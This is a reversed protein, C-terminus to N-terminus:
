RWRPGVVWGVLSKRMGSKVKRVRHKVRSDFVIMTGRPKPAFFTGGSNDMFQVEGGTYESPDSLQVTFSLKRVYEGQIMIQDQHQNEAFNPVMQPKYFSDIDHDQHWHYYHGEGYQTYQINGGDIETIDYCFNERNVKDIYYWLWGAVWHSTPIWVNTSNRIVKDVQDGMLKSEQPPVPLAYLDKELIEVIELPLATQHWCALNAM